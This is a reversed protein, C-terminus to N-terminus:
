LFFSEPFFFKGRQRAPTVHSPRRRHAGACFFFTNKKSNKKSKGFLPSGHFANFNCPINRADFFRNKDLNDLFSIATSFM